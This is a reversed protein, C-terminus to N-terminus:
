VSHYLRSCQRQPNTLFISRSVLVSFFLKVSMEKSVLRISVPLIPCSFCVLLNFSFSRTDPRQTASLYVINIYIYDDRMGGLHLLPFEGRRM